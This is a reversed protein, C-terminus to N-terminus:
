KPRATLIVLDSYVHPLSLVQRATSCGWCLIGMALSLFRVRTTKPYENFGRTVNELTLGRSKVWELFAPWQNRIMPICCCFLLFSTSAASRRLVSEAAELFPMMQDFDYPPDTLVVDFGGDLDAPLPRTLDAIRCSIPYSAEAALDRIISLVNEDLDVVTIDNSLRSALALSTFDDDGLCAIRSGPQVKSRILAARALATQAACPQQHFRRAKVRLQQRARDLLEDPHESTGEVSLQKSTQHAVSGAWQARILENLCTDDIKVLKDLEHLVRDLHLSHLFTRLIKLRRALRADLLGPFSPSTGRDPPAALASVTTPRGQGTPQRNM